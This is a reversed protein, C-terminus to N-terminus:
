FKIFYRPPDQDYLRLDINNVSIQNRLRLPPSSLASHLTCLASHLAFEYPAVDGVGRSSSNIIVFNSLIVRLPCERIGRKTILFRNNAPRRPLCLRPSDVGVSLRIGINNVSIQNNQQLPRRGRRGTVFFKHNCCKILYGYPANVFAGNIIM